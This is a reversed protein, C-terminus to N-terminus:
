SVACVERGDRGGAWSAEIGQTGVQLLKTTLLKIGESNLILYRCLHKWPLMTYVNLLVEDSPTVVYPPNFVLVDVKGVLREHFCSMQPLHLLLQIVYTVDECSCTLASVLDM